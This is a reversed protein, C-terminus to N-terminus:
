LDDYNHIHDSIYAGRAILVKRGLRVSSASSIVVNGSITTGDGISLTVADGEGLSQLWSNAGIWVDSGIAISREGVLRVPPEIVSREGFTAFAGRVGLSFGKARARQAFRYTAISGPGLIRRFAM